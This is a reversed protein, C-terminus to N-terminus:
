FEAVMVILRSKAFRVIEDLVTQSIMIALLVNSLNLNHLLLADRKMELFCNDM